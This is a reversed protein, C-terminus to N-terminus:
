SVFRSTSLIFHLCCHLIFTSLIFQLLCYCKPIVSKTSFTRNVSKSRWRVTLSQVIDVHFQNRSKGANQPGRFVFFTRINVHKPWHDLLTYKLRLSFIYNADSNERRELRYTWQDINRKAVFKLSAQTNHKQNRAEGLINTPWVTNKQSIVMCQHSSEFLRNTLFTINTINWTFKYM